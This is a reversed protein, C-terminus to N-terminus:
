PRPGPSANQRSRQQLRLCPSTLWSRSSFCVLAATGTVPRQPEKNTSKRPLHPHIYPRFSPSFFDHLDGKEEGQVAPFHQRDLKHAASQPASHMGSHSRCRSRKIARYRLSQCNPLSAPVAECAAPFGPSSQPAGSFLQHPSNANCLHPRMDFVAMTGSADRDPFLIPSRDPCNDSAAPSQCSWRSGCSPSCAM